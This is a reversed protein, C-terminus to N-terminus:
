AELPSVLAVVTHFCTEKRNLVHNTM